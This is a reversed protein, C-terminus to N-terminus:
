IQPLEGDFIDTFNEDEESTETFMNRVTYWKEKGRKIENLEEEELLKKITRQITKESVGRAEGLEVIQKKSVYASAALMDMM